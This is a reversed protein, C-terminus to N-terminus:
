SRTRAGHAALFEVSSATHRSLMWDDCLGAPKRTGDALEAVARDANGKVFRVEREFGNLM